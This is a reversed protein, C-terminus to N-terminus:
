HECLSFTEEEFVKTERLVFAKRKKMLKLRMKKAKEMGIPFGEVEEFVLDGLERPLWVDIGGQCGIEERWWDKRQCPVNASSIIKINPNVLFLALIKRHGPKTRDELEFPQVQHQLINPFTLLQGERMDVGGVNQFTPGYQELGFVNPFWEHQEQRYVIQGRM